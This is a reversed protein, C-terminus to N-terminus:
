KKEKKKPKLNKVTTAAPKKPPIKNVVSLVPIIGNVTTKLQPSLAYQYKDCLENLEETFQSLKPDVKNEVPKGPLEQNM